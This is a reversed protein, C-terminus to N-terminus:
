RAARHLRCGQPCLSRDLPARRCGPPPGGGDVTTQIKTLTDPYGGAFTPTVKIGPNAANFDNAYGEIIKTIPGGVAIPYFFSLEVTAGGTTAPAKTASSAATTAAPAAASGSPATTAAASPCHDRRPGHDSGSRTGNHGSRSARHNRGTEAHRDRQQWRVRRAPRGSGRGHQRWPISPPFSETERAPERDDTEGKYLRVYCAVACAARDARTMRGM